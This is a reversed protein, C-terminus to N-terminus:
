IVEKLLKEAEGSLRLERRWRQISSKSLDFKQMAEEISLLLFDRKQDDTYTKILKKAKINKQYRRYMVKKAPINLRKAVVTSPINVDFVLKDMEETWHIYEREGNDILKRGGLCNICKSLTCNLCKEIDAKSDERM